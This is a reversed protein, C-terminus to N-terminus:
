SVPAPAAASTLDITMGSAALTPPNGDRGWVDAAARQMGELTDDDHTPDHHFMLLKKAGTVRAYAVADTYSSHGWGRRGEYEAPTYQSDHMLLDAGDAIAFGDIWDPSENAFDGLAAPEHDPMFAFVVGNEEIRYGVTPGPHEIPLATITASGITWSDIPLDHFTTSAPVDHVDIPFLPPSMYRALREKLSFMPSPPGWVHLDADPSWLPTFFPFGEVHDMHLHTLLLHVEKVNGISAGLERIGTGADLVVLTGDHLRLEVCTTDGGYRLKSRGPAALSGRCGWITARM